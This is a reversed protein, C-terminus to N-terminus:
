SSYKVKNQHIHFYKTADGLDEEEQEAIFQRNDGGALISETSEEPRWTKLYNEVLIQHWCIFFIYCNSIRVIFLGSIGTQFYDGKQSDWGKKM